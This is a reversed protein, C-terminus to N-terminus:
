LAGSIEKVVADTASQQEKRPLSVILKSTRLKGAAGSFDAGRLYRRVGEPLPGARKTIMAEFVQYALELKPQEM